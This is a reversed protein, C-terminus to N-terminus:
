VPYFESVLPFLILLFSKWGGGRGIPEQWDESGAQVVIAKNGPSITWLCGGGGGVKLGVVDQLVTGVM